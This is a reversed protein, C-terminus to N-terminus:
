IIKKAMSKIRGKLFRFPSFTIPELPYPLIFPTKLHIDRPNMIPFCLEDFVTGPIIKYIATDVAFPSESSALLSLKIAEGGTPGKKHMAITADVLTITPPLKQVVGIILKSFYEKKKGYLMHYLAKRFGVVTGYLNKVGCTIGMQCHAKLRPINLIIDAKLAIESIGVAINLGEIKVRKPGKLTCIKAGLSTLKDYIGLHKIVREATGFAPSDAVIVSAGRDVLIKACELILWPSTVALPDKAKLLNPKILVTKDSLSIPLLPDLIKQVFLTPNGNDKIIYVAIKRIKNKTVM